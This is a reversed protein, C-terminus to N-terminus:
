PLLIKKKRKEENEFRTYINEYKMEREKEGREIDFIKQYIRKNDEEVFEFPHEIRKIIM